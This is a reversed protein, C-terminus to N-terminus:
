KELAECVVFLKTHSWSFLLFIFAHSMENFPINKNVHQIPDTQIGGGGLGKRWRM